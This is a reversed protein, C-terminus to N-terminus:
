DNANIAIASHYALEASFPSGKCVLSYKVKFDLDMIANYTGLTPTASILTYTVDGGVVVGVRSIGQHELSQWTWQNNQNKVHVGKEFSYLYWGLSRLIVWNYKKTRTTPQQNETTMSLMESAVNADSLTAFNASCDVNDEDCPAIRVPGPVSGCPNGDDGGSPGGGGGGGSGGYDGGSPGGGYDHGDDLYYYECGLFETWYYGDPDDASYNWGQIEYCVEIVLMSRESSISTKAAERLRRVGRNEDYKYKSLANGFWDEVYIVGTFPNNGGIEYNSDPFMTILEAHYVQSADKYILLRTLANLSYRKDEGINSKLYYPDEYHVPVVVAKGISLEDIYADKWIVRKPLKARSNKPNIEPTPYATIMNEFFVRADRIMSEDPNMVNEDDERCETCLFTLLAFVPWTLLKRM